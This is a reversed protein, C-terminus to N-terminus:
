AGQTGWSRCESVRHVSVDGEERPEHAIHRRERALVPALPRRQTRRTAAEAVEQADILHLTQQERRRPPRRESQHLVAVVNGGSREVDFTRIPAGLEVVDGVEVPDSLCDVPAGGEHQLAQLARRQWEGVEAPAELSGGAMRHLCVGVEGGRSGGSQRAVVVVVVHEHELDGPALGPLDVVEAGDGHGGAVDEVQRRCGGMGGLGLGLGAEVQGNAQKADGVALHQASSQSWKRGEVSGEGEPVGSRILRRRKCGLEPPHETLCGGGDGVDVHREVPQPPAADARVRRRGSAVPRSRDM